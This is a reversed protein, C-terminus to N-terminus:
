EAATPCGDPFPPIASTFSIRRRDERERTRCRGCRCSGRIEGVVGDRGICSMPLNICEGGAFPPTRRNIVIGAEIEVISCDLADLERRREREAKGTRREFAPVASRAVDLNAHFVAEKM